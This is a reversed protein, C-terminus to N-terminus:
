TRRVSSFSNDYSGLSSYSSNCCFSWLSGGYFWDTWFQGSESNRAQFSSIRDNWGITFLASYDASMYMYAGSYSAYDFVLVYDVSSTSLIPQVAAQLARSETFCHIVPYDFDHCDFRGVAALPIPQGDLDARLDGPGPAGPETPASAAAQPIAWTSAMVAFLIALAGLRTRKRGRM